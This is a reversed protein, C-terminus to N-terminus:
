MQKESKEKSEHIFRKIELGTCQTENGIFQISKVALLDELLEDINTPRVALAVFMMDQQILITQKKVFM